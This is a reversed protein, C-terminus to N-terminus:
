RNVDVRDDQCNQLDDANFQLLIPHLNLHLEVIPKRGQLSVPNLQLLDNQVEDHIGILGHLRYLWAHQFYSRILDLRIHRVYGNLIASRANIWRM